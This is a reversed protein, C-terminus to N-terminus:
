RGNFKNKINQYNIQDFRMVYEDGWNYMLNKLPTYIIFNKNFYSAMISFSSQGTILIDASCMHHLAELDSGGLQFSVNSNFLQKFDDVKGESFILINLNDKGLEKNLNNLIEVYYDLELWRDPNRSLNIDGRRIHVAVNIKNPIFNLQIDRDVGWYSKQLEPKILNYHQTLLGPFPNDALKILSDDPLSNVINQVYEINKFYIQHDLKDDHCFEIPELNHVYNFSIDQITKYESNLNLFSEYREADKTFPSYVYELNFLKALYLGTIWNHFKHGSSSRGIDPDTFNIPSSQIYKM